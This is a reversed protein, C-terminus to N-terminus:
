PKRKNVRSKKISSCDRKKVWIFRKLPNILYALFFIILLILSTIVYNFIFIIQLGIVVELMLFALPKINSCIRRTNRM